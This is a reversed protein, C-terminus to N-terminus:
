FGLQIKNGFVFLLIILLGLIVLMADLLKVPVNMKDYIDTIWNGKREGPETQSDNENKVTKKEEPNAM